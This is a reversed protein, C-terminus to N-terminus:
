SSSPRQCPQREQAWQSERRVPIESSGARSFIRNTRRRGERGRMEAAKAFPSSGQEFTRARVRAAVPTEASRGMREYM